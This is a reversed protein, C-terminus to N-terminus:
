FILCLLAFLLLTSVPLVFSLAKILLLAVFGFTARQRIRAFSILILLYIAYLTSFSMKM